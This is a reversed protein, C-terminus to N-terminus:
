ISSNKSHLFSQLGNVGMTRNENKLHAAFWRFRFNLYREDVPKTNINWFNEHLKYTSAFNARLHNWAVHCISLNLQIRYSETLTRSNLFSDFPKHLIFFTSQRHTCITFHHQQPQPQRRHQVSHRPKGNRHKTCGIDMHSISSKDGKSEKAFAYICHIERKMVCVVNKAYDRWYTEIHQACWVGNETAAM